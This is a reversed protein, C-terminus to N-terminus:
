PEAARMSVSHHQVAGHQFTIAQGPTFAHWNEDSTLPQTAILIMRDHESNLTSLDMSMECDILTARPFPYQRQVYALNTSCHAFLLEGNSLLCNFNGFARIEGCLETLVDHLEAAEPLRDKSANPFRELLNQMVYCFARESDTEGVPTFRDNLKPHYDHLDGNHCFIWYKGWLERMFPHCNRLKVEGYTAKRIHAIVTSSKIPYDKILQAVPSVSAPQHDLYLRCGGEEFFAIGWGDAHEDTWGGRASFGEFAFRISAPEQCNMGLLQCM